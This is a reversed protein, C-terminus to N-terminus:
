EASGGNGQEGALDQLVTPPGERFPEIQKLPQNLANFLSMRDEWDVPGSYVQGEALKPVPSGFLEVQKDIPWDIAQYGFVVKKTGDETEQVAVGDHVVSPEVSAAALLKGTLDMFRARKEPVALSQLLTEPKDQGEVPNGGADISVPFLRRTFFDLEEVLGREVLDMTGLHQLLATQGGPFEHVFRVKQRPKWSDTVAFRNSIEQQVQAKLLEPPVIPDLRKTGDPLDVTRYPLPGSSVDQTGVPNTQITEDPDVGPYSM